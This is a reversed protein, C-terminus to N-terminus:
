IQSSMAKGDEVWVAADQKAKERVRVGALRAAKRLVKAAAKAESASLTAWVDFEPLHVQVHKDAKITVNELELEYM